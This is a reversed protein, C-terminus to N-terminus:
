PQTETAARERRNWTWESEIEIRGIEGTLWHRFSSWQWQEPTDVLGREVPNRHIYRLKEVFKSHTFVNFDYYRKQWLPEEGLSAKKSVETKLAGIIQSLTLKDPESVLLHVHEPMLVYGFVYFKHRRRLRELSREFVTRLVDNDLLPKRHYCSFTLFHLHGAHQYRKLDHPM